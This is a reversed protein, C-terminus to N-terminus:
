VLLDAFSEQSALQYSKRTDEKHCLWSIAFLLDHNPDHNPQWLEAKSFIFNLFRTDLPYCCQCIESVSGGFEEDDRILCYEKFHVLLLVKPQFETSNM